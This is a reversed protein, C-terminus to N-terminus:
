VVTTKCDGRSVGMCGRVISLCGIIVSTHLLGVVSVFLALVTGGEGNM